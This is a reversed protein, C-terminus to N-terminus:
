YEEVITGDSGEGGQGSQTDAIRGLILKKEFKV